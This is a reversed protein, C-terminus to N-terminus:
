FSSPANGSQKWIAKVTGTLPSHSMPLNGDLTLLTTSFWTTTIAETSPIMESEFQVRDWITQRIDDLWSCHQQLPNPNTFKKFHKDPTTSSGSSHTKFYVTGVLRLFALFGSNIKNGEINVDALTGPLNYKGSSIFEDHKFFYRLFNAKGIGSFFSIYDCGSAVFITQFIQPLGCM